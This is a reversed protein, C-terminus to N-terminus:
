SCAGGGLVCFSACYVHNLPVASLSQELEVGMDFRQDYPLLTCPKVVPTPSGRPKVVMRSTACMMHAPDVKLLGWCEPTIEPVDANPHMEPFVTLDDHNNGCLPWGQAQFMAGYGARALMESEGLLRRGAICTKFKNSLLWNLGACAKAFSGQGREGDHGEQTWHDLSVRLTLHERGALALMGQQIRPRQLPQMANTLLLVRHGRQLATTILELIYPNMFPEGGTLGIEIAGTGLKDLADLYPIMDDATLYTLRDNTPASEIYCNTCAINCLTGTNFWLTKFRKFAVHARPEGKATRLPDLFKAPM